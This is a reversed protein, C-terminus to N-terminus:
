ERPTCPTCLRLRPSLPEGRASRTVGPTTPACCAEPPPLDDGPAATTRHDTPGTGMAFAGISTEEVDGQKRKVGSHGLRGEVGDGDCSVM